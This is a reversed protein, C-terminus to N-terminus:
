RTGNGSLRRNRDSIANKGLVPLCVSTTFCYRARRAILQHVIIYKEAEVRALIYALQLNEQGM